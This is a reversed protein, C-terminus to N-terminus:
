MGRKVDKAADEVHGGGSEVDKGMGEITNCASLAAVFGLMLLWALIKQTMIMSWITTFVGGFRIQTKTAIVWDASAPQNIFDTAIGSNRDHM